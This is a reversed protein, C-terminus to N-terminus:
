QELEQRIRESYQESEGLKAIETLQIVSQQISRSVENLERFHLRNQYDENKQIKFFYMASSIGIALLLTVSFMILSSFRRKVPSM